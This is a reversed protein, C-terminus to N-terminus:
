EMSLEIRQHLGFQQDDIFDTIQGEILKLGTVQELDDAISILAALWDSQRAVFSEALPSLDEGIVRGHGRGSQITQEM